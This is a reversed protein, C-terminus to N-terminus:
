WAAAISAVMAIVVGAMLVVLALCISAITAVVTWTFIGYVIRDAYDTKM